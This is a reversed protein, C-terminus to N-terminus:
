YNASKWEPAVLGGRAKCSEMKRLVRAILIIPPVYLGFSHGWDYTFSDVGTTRYCWFRSYFVPLKANHESAFYDVDLQGWRSRIMDLISFSIAWDDAEIVKSLYDASSKESRPIWEIELHISHTSTFNFIQLTSNHLEPKISGKNVISCVGTNDTFWKVRQNSLVDVLSRLVRLVACLERWTSSKVAEETSWSGHSVGNITGVEYGGYGTASADSYVIRSCAGSVNLYRVNLSM